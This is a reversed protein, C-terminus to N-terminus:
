LHVFLLYRCRQNENPQYSMQAKTPDGVFQRFSQSTQKIIKSELNLQERNTRYLKNTASAKRDSKKKGELNKLGVAILDNTSNIILLRKRSAFSIIEMTGETGSVFNYKEDHLSELYAPAIIAQRLEKTMRIDDTFQLLLEDIKNLSAMIFKCCKSGQALCQVETAILIIGTCESLFGQSTIM